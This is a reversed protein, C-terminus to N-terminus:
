YSRRPMPPLCVVLGSRGCVLFMGCRVFIQAFRAHKILVLAEAFFSLLAYKVAESLSNAVRTELGFVAIEHAVNEIVHEWQGQELLGFTIM